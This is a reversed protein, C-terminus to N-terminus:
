NGLGHIFIDLYMVLGILGLIFLVGVYTAAALVKETPKKGTVGEWILFVMHGGDLVPIPLFNLVALNVSLIGLFLLLESFGHQAVTYAISAIGIPGRFNEISLDGRVLSRLTSYIELIKNRTHHLGMPFSESFSDAVLDTLEHAVAFGRKSFFWDSAEIAAPTLTVDLTEQETARSVTLKVQHDRHTQIFAFAYAWDTPRNPHEADAFEIKLPDSKKSKKKPKEGEKPPPPIYEVVKVRDGPQLRGEAPSGPKVHLITRTIEFAVGISPASLPTDRGFPYEIWAPIDEPVIELRTLGTKDNDEGPPAKNSDGPESGERRVHIVTPQGHRRALLEPLRLPDVDRGIELDREGDNVHTMKDGVKLGAASAPSDRKIAKITGIDMVIGLELMRNTPIRITVEELESNKDEPNVARRVHLTVERDAHRALYEQLEHFHELPQDDIRVIEDNPELPPDAQAAASQASVLPIGEPYDALKLSRVPSVGIQRRPGSTDPVISLSQREGNQKRVEIELPGSSLATRLAIDEYSTTKKGNISLIEDGERLGAQWAPKGIEMMGVIPPSKKVGITFAVAFFLMATVVNMIVGASIIAMRQWVNKATYSRPDEAIDEDSMQAPDMDDQGLMKVYGGFPIASFAYETEGWKRSLLIPGFGISFREVYVDCWKAVAFHGLEHFFIVLGLGLAVYAINIISDLSPLINLLIAV